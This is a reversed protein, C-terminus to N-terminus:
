GSRGELIPTLCTPDGGLCRARLAVVYFSYGTSCHARPTPRTEPSEVVLARPGSGANTGHRHVSPKITTTTWFLNLRGGLNTRMIMMPTTWPGWASRLRHGPPATPAELCRLLRPRPDRYTGYLLPAAYAYQLIANIYAARISTCRPM